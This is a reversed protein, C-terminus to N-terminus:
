LEKLKTEIWVKDEFYSDGAREMKYAICLDIIEEVTLYYGEFDEVIQEGDKGYRVRRGQHIPIM